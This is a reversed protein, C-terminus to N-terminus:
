RSVLGLKEAVVRTVVLTGHDGPESIVTGPLLRPHAISVVKGHVRCLVVHENQALIAVDHFEIRDKGDMMAWTYTRLAVARVSGTSSVIRLEVYAQARLHTPRAPDGGAKSPGARGLLFHHPFSGGSLREILGHARQPCDAFSGAHFWTGEPVIVAPARRRVAAALATADPDLVGCVVTVPVDVAADFEGALWRQPLTRLTPRTPRPM